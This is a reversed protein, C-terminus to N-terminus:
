HLTHGIKTITAEIMRLINNEKGLLPLKFNDHDVAYLYINRWSAM